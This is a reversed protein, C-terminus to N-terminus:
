LILIFRMILYKYFFRLKPQPKNKLLNFQERRLVLFRKRIKVQQTKGNNKIIGLILVGTRIGQLETVRMTALIVLILTSEGNALTLLEINQISQKYSKQFQLQNKM